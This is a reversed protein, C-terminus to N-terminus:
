KLSDILMKIEDTETELAELLEPNQMFKACKKSVAPKLGHNDKLEKVLDKIHEKEEEITGLSTVISMIKAKVDAKSNSQPGDLFENIDTTM